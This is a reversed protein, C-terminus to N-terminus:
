LASIRFTFKRNFFQLNVKIVSLDDIRAHSSAMMLGASLHSPDNSTKKVTMDAAQPQSMRYTGDPLMFGDVILDGIQISARTAKTSGSM